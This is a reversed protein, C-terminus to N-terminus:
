PAAVAGDGLVVSCGRALVAGAVDLHALGEEPETGGVARPELRGEPGGPVADGVAVAKGVGAVGPVDEALRGGERQGVAGVGPGPLVPPVVLVEEGVV